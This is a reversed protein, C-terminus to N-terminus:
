STLRASSGPSQRVTGLKPHFSFTQSHRIRGSPISHAVMLRPCTQPLINKEKKGKFGGAQRLLSTVHLAHMGTLEITEGIERPVRVM